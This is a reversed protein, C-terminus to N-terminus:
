EPDSIKDENVRDGTASIIRDTDSENSITLRTGKSEKFNLLIFNLPFSPRYIRIPNTRAEKAIKPIM